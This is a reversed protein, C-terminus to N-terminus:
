INSWDDDNDGAGSDPDDDARRDRQQDAQDAHGDARENDPRADPRGALGTDPGIGDAPDDDGTPDAVLSGDPVDQGARDTGGPDGQGSADSAPPQGPDVQDAQAAGDAGHDRPNEARAVHRDSEAVVEADLIPEQGRTLEKLATNDIAQISAILRAAEIEFEENSVGALIKIPSDLGLLKAERELAKLIVKAANIANEPDAGLLRKYMNRQVDFIVARHRAVINAPAERNIDRCVIEYDKRCTTISVGVEHSVDAWPLGMNRLLMVQSRRHMREDELMAEIEGDTVTM